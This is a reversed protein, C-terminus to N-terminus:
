FWILPGLRLSQSFGDLGPFLTARNVNMHNLDRLADRRIKGPLRIKVLNLEIETDEYASFNGAFGKDVDGPVLFIGQQIVLREHAKQPALVLIMAVPEQFLVRRLISPDTLHVADFRGRVEPFTAEIRALASKMCWQTNFAWVASCESPEELAFFSAVYPSNTWDLLRTPAGYHQMLALWEVESEPIMPASLFGYARRKFQFMVHAEVEGPQFEYCHRDLSSQLPWEANKQGRFNWLRDRYAGLIEKAEEWSNVDRVSHALSAPAM